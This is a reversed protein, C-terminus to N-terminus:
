YRRLDSDIDTSWADIGGAINAVMQFGQEALFGAVRASRGGSHCLVAIPRSSDLEGLREPIQAMPINLSGDVSAIEREWDERVDLLRWNPDASKRELYEMPGIDEYM